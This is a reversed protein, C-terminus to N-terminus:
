STAATLSSNISNWITSISSKVTSLVGVAALAIFALLLSYEVLDQGQEDQWFRKVFSKVM